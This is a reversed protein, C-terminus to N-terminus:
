TDGSDRQSIEFVMNVEGGLWADIVEQHCVLFVSIPPPPPPLTNLVLSKGM